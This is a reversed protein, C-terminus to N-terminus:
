FLRIFMSISKQYDTRMPGILSIFGKDFRRSIMSYNAHDFFPNESGIFITFEREMRNLIEDASQELREIEDILSIVEGRTQFEPNQLATKLGVHRIDGNEDVFIAVSKVERSVRDAFLKVNEARAQSAEKEVKEKRAQMKEQHAELLEDVFFRYGRETPVRGAATHPQNLFGMDTLDAMENRITPCSIEWNEMDFVRGSSVPMATNIYEEIISNLIKSQRNSLM